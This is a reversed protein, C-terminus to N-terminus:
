WVRVTYKVHTIISLKADYELSILSIRNSTLDVGFLHYVFLWWRKIGVWDARLQASIERETQSRREIPMATVAHARFSTTRELVRQPPMNRALRQESLTKTHQRRSNQRIQIITSPGFPKSLMNLRYIRTVLKLRWGIRQMWKCHLTAYLSWRVLETDHCHTSYKWCVTIPGFIM